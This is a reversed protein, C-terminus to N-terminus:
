VRKGNRAPTKKENGEERVEWLTWAWSRYLSSAEEQTLSATTWNKGGDASVDVRVIKRGGGSWAYGRVKVRGAADLTIKANERPECIASQIPYDIIAPATSFDVNAQDINPSFGKYDRQQWHSDSEKESLVIKGLWKVNRAGVVGPAVVRLPFGHDRPLPEGNM